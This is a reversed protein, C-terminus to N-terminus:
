ERVAALTPARHACLHLARADGQGLGKEMSWCILNSTAEECIAEIFVSRMAETDDATGLRQQLYFCVQMHQM